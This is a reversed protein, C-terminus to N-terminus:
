VFEGVKRSTAVALRFPPHSARGARGSRELSLKYCLLGAGPSGGESVLHPESCGASGPAIFPNATPSPLGVRFARSTSRSVQIRFCVQTNGNPACPSCLTRARGPGLGCVEAGRGPPLLVSCADGPTSVLKRWAALVESFGGSRGGQPEKGKGGWPAREGGKVGSTEEPYSGSGPGPRSAARAERPSPAGGPLLTEPRLSTRQGGGGEGRSGFWRSPIKTPPPLPLGRPLLLRNRTSGPGPPTM